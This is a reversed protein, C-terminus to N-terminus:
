AAAKQHPIKSPILLKKTKLVNKWLLTRLASKSACELKEPLDGILNTLTKLLTQVCVQFHFTTTYTRHNDDKLPRRTVQKITTIAECKLPIAVPESYGNCGPQYRCHETSVQDRQPRQLIKPQSSDKKKLM